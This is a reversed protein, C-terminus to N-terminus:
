HIMNYYPLTENSTAFLAGVYESETIYVTRTPLMTARSTYTQVAVAKLSPKTGDGAPLYAITTNSIIPAASFAKTRTQLRDYSM